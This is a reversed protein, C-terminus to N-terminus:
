RMRHQFLRTRMPLKKAPELLIGGIMPLSTLLLAHWDLAQTGPSLQSAQGQKHMPSPALRHGAAACAPRAIAAMSGAHGATAALWASISWAAIGFDHLMEPRTRVSCRAMVMGTLAFPTMPVVGCGNAIAGTIQLVAAVIM